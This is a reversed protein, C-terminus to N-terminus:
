VSGVPEALWTTAPDHQKEIVKEKPVFKALTAGPKASHGDNERHAEGAKYCM